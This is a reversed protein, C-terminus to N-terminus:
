NRVTPCFAHSQVRLLGDIFAGSLGRQEWHLVRFVWHSQTASPFHWQSCPSGVGHCNVDAFIKRNGKSSIARFTHVPKSAREGARLGLSTPDADQGGVEYAAPTRASGPVSIAM